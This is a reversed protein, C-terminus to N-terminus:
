KRRLTEKKCGFYPSKHELVNKKVLVRLMSRVTNENMKVAKILEEVTYARQKKRLFLLVPHQDRSNVKKRFNDRRFEKLSISM